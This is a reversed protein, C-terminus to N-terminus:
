GGSNGDDEVEEAQSEKLIAQIEEESLIEGAFKFALNIAMSDTIWGRDRMTALADVMMKASRAMMLNDRVEIDPVTVKLKMDASTRKGSLRYAHGIIDRLVWCFYEQRQRYHRFTPGGMEAATARTASEGEALFHLPIGAGSAVSLRLVKGDDRVNAADINLDLAKWVEGPGHVMVSGHEPPSKGYQTKKAEVKTDDDVTVDWLGGEVRARNLRVRDKLWATYRKAWPLIPLLDGEGRVAGIPRNIAYHLVVPDGPEAVKASKWWTGQVNNLTGLRHYAWEEEHDEPNTEVKDIQKAPIFRIYSMGDYKNTFLVPFLEGSRTLEDCMTPLRLDMRNMPHDWWTRVFKEVKVVESSLGIGDGVVYNTTLRVIQRILFNKRWAVLADEVDAQWEVFLRDETEVERILAQWGTADHTIPAASVSALREAIVDGAIRDALWGRLSKLM